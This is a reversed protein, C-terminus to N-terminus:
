ITLGRQTKVNKSHHMHCIAVALADSADKKPVVPMKLLTKIMKQVQEKTANGYGVVSQKVKAPTYEFVPIGAKAACLIAVGRAHGLMIASKVNKALFIDEIAVADPIYDILVVQLFDFIMGLREHIPKKSDTAISGDCVHVLKGGGGDVIGYGTILSGPDIGLIRM